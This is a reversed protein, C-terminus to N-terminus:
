FCGAYLVRTEVLIYVEAGCPVLWGVIKPLGREGKHSTWWGFTAQNPALTGQLQFSPIKLANVTENVLGGKPITRKAPYSIQAGSKEGILPAGNRLELSESAFCVVYVLKKRTSQQCRLAVDEHDEGEYMSSGESPSLMRATFSTTPRLLRKCGAWRPLMDVGDPWHDLLDMCRARAHAGRLVWGGEVVWVWDLVRWVRM